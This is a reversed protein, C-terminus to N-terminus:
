VVRCVIYVRTQARPGLRDTEFAVARLGPRDLLTESLIKEQNSRNQITWVEGRVAGGRYVRELRVRIKKGVRVHPTKPAREVSYGEPEVGQAMMQVVRVLTTEYDSANEWARAALVDAPNREDPAPRLVVSDAARHEPVLQLGYHQGHETTIFLTFPKKQYDATPVLYLEGSVADWRSRYAGETGEVRTIRQGLVAIRTKDDAAIPATVRGNDEVTQIRFGWAHSVLATIGMLSVAGMFFGRVRMKMAMGRVRKRM